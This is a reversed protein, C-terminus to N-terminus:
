FRLRWRKWGIGVTNVTNNTGSSPAGFIASRVRVVTTGYSFRAGANVGELNCSIHKIDVTSAGGYGTQFNICSRQGAYMYVNDLAIGDQTSNSFVLAITNNAAIGRKFFVTLDRLGSRFSALHSNPDGLTIVHTGPDFSNCARLTTGGVAGELIVGFPVILSAAPSSCLNTVGAPVIVRAGQFGGADPNTPGRRAAYFLANQVAAFDNTGAGAGDGDSKVGFAAANVVGITEPVYQWRNGASDTFSATPPTVATITYTFGSGTGGILSNSATLVDGVAFGNGPQTACNVASVAGSSVTIQCVAGLGSGGNLSVGYYTGNTYSSGGAITGSQIFSDLFPTTGVKKFLAGGGDGGDAYGLTRVVAYASLDLAAAATRSTSIFTSGSVAGACTPCSINGTAANLVLPSTVNTAVTGSTNPWLITPTGAIAQARVTATGSSSGAFLISSTNLTPITPSSALMTAILTSFPIAQAPGSGSLTRGIVTGSPVTPFQQALAKIPALILALALLISLHKKM